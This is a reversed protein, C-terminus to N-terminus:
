PLARTNSKKPAVPNAPTDDYKSKTKAKLSPPTSHKYQKVEAARESVSKPTPKEPRLALSLALANGGAMAKYTTVTKVILM